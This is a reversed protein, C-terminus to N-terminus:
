LEASFKVQATSGFYFDGMDGSTGNFSTGATVRLITSVSTAGTVSLTVSGSITVYGSAVNNYMNVQNGSPSAGPWSPSSSQLSPAARMPVPFPVLTDVLNTTVRQAKYPIVGTAGQNGLAYFYRQCLMAEASPARLEAVPPAANLGTSVGPTYRIDLATLYVIKSGSNLAGGFDITAELGNVTNANAIFTYAVQTAAGNPCAQLNVANVDTATAGWNDKVTPRKVTLTPTISAGTNNYILASVTVALGALPAALLSEIRQKVFSNTVSTAGTLKLSNYPAGSTGAPFQAQDWSINAGTTSVIWGDLTYDPSGATVTGTVGRAAIDMAANRFKNIFGGNGVPTATAASQPNTLIIRGGGGEDYVGRCLTNPQMEGGSLAVTGDGKRLPIGLIDDIDITAAMTNAVAPFWMFEMRYKVHRVRPFFGIVLANATGTATPIDGTAGFRMTDAQEACLVRKSGATFNVLQDANSSRIVNRTITDQAGVTVVGWGEEWNVYTSDEVTYYIKKGTGGAANAMSRRGSPPPDLTLTGTGTTQTTQEARTNFM